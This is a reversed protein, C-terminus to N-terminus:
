PGENWHCQRRCTQNMEMMLPRLDFNRLSSVGVLYAISVQYSIHPPSLHDHTPPACLLVFSCCYSSPAGRLIQRAVGESVWAMVLPRSSEPVGRTPGILMRSVVCLLALRVSDPWYKDSKTGSGCHDDSKDTRKAMHRQLTKVM